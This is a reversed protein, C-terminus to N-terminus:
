QPGTTTICTVDHDSKRTRQRAYQHQCRDSRCCRFGIVEHPLNRVLAHEGFPPMGLRATSPCDAPIAARTADCRAVPIKLSPTSSGDIVEYTSAFKPIPVSFKAPPHELRLWPSAYGPYNSGKGLSSSLGAPSAQPRYARIRARLRLGHVRLRTGAM